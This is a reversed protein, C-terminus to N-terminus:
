AGPAALQDAAASLVDHLFFRGLDPAVGGLTLGRPVREAIRERIRVFGHANRLTPRPFGLRSVYADAFAVRHEPGVVGMSALESRAAEVVEDKGPPAADGPYQMEVCVAHGDRASAPCYAAYHTVRFARYPADYCYFYYLDGMAPARDLVFHAYGVHNPLDMGLDDFPVQLLQALQMLPASWFVRDLELALEAGDAGQARLTAGDGHAAAVSRIRAGLHIAVGASRLRESFRDIYHRLGYRRPYLARQRSARAEAPLRMQDPVALRCRLTESKMLDLMLDHDYLVVRDSSVMRVAFPDLEEPEARWVKRQAPRFVHEALPAGFKSGYYRACDAAHQWEPPGALAGFLGAVLEDKGEPFDRLDVYHSGTQLRGRWFLGAIDKRNGEWFHWEDDALVERVVRDVREDCAEYFLHMGYDFIRDGPYSISGYTGGLSASTEVLHVEAAPDIRKLEAAYYM